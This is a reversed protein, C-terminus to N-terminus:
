NSPIDKRWGKEGVPSRTTTEPLCIVLTTPHSIDVLNYVFEILKTVQSECAAGDRSKMYVLKETIQHTFKGGNVLDVHYCTDNLIADFVSHKTRFDNQIYGSCIVIDSM